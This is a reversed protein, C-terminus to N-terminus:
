EYSEKGGFVLSMWMSVMEDINLKTDSNVWDMMLNYFAGTIFKKKQESFVMGIKASVSNFLHNNLTNLIFEGYHADYVKKILESYNDFTEIISRFYDYPCQINQLYMAERAKTVISDVSAKVVDQLSSFNRYFTMRSIKAKEVLENISIDEFKEVSLVSLFTDVVQSISKNTRSM